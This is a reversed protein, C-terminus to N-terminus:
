IDRSHLLEIVLEDIDPDGRTRDNSQQQQKKKEKLIHYRERYIKNYEERHSELYRNFSV